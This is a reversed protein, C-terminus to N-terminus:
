PMETWINRRKAEARLARFQPVVAELQEDGYMESLEDVADDIADAAGDPANMAYAAMGSVYRIALAERNRRLYAITNTLHSDTMRSILIVTGDRQVWAARKSRVPVSMAEIEAELGPNDPGEGSIAM